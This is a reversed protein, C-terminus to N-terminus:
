RIHKKYPIFSVYEKDNDKIWYGFKGTVKIPPIPQFKLNKTDFAKAGEELSATIHPIKLKDMNQEDFNIYYPILEKSLQVEFGSNKGDNAYGILYLEFTRGVIEDFMEEETPHYKFTCHIEDNINPLTNSELSHILQITDSDFFIGAYSLM